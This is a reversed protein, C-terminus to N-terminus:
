RREWRERDVKGVGGTNTEKKRGGGGFSLTDFEAFAVGPSWYLLHRSWSVDAESARTVTSVDEVETM